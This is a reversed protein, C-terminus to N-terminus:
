RGPFPVEAPEAADGPLRGASARLHAGADELHRLTLYRTTGPPAAEGPPTVITTRVTEAAARGEDVVARVSAPLEAEFAKGTQVVTAAPDGGPAADIRDAGAIALNRELANAGAVTRELSNAAMRDFLQPALSFLFATAATALFLVAAFLPDSRLRRRAVTFPAVVTRRLGARTM